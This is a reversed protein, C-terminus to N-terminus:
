AGCRTARHARAGRATEGPAGPREGQRQQRRSVSKPGKEVVYGAGLVDGRAEQQDHSRQRQGVRRDSADDGGPAGRIRDAPDEQAAGQGRGEDESRSCVGLGRSRHRRGPRHRGGVQGRPYGSRKCEGRDGQEAQHQKQVGVSFQRRAAPTKGGPDGGCGRDGARDAGERGTGDFFVLRGDFIRESDLSCGPLDYGAQSGHGADEHLQTEHQSGRRDEYAKRRDRPSSRRCSLHNTRVSAKMAANM